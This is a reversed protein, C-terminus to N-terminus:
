IQSFQGDGRIYFNDTNEDHSIVNSVGWHMQIQMAALPDALTGANTVNIVKVDANFKFGWQVTLDSPIVTVGSIYHGAGNLNGGYTYIVDFTFDVVNMGFANKYPVHFTRRQPASWGALLQWNTSPVASAIDAEQVNAVPKNAEVIPWLEKGINIIDIIPNASGGLVALAAAAGEANTKAQAPPTVEEIKSSEISYFDKQEQLSLANAAPSLLVSLLVSGLVGMNKTM